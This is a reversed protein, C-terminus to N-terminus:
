STTAVFDIVADNELLQMEELQEDDLVVGRQAATERPRARFAARLNEDASIDDFFDILPRTM